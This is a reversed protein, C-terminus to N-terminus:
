RNPANPVMFGPLHIRKGLWRFEPTFEQALNAIALSGFAIGMRNIAHSADNYGPPLYAKGVFGASASAAFNSLAVTTRGSDSKDFATFAIAHMARAFPNRNSSPSYRPDEHFVAGTLFKGTQAATQFALADGYLRGLSGAGQRWDKPYHAPPNALMPASWFVPAVFAGPGFSRGAFYRAKGAFDLPGCSLPDSLCKAGKVPHTTEPAELHDVANACPVALMPVKWQADDRGANNGRTQQGHLAAGPVLLLAVALFSILYKM